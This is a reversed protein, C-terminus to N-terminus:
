QSDLVQKCKQIAAEQKKVPWDPEFAITQKTQIVFQQWAKKRAEYSNQDADIEEILQNLTYSQLTDESAEMDSINKIPDLQKRYQVFQEPTYDDRYKIIEFCASKIFESCSDLISFVRATLQPNRGHKLGKIYAPIYEQEVDLFKELVSDLYKDDLSSLVFAAASVKDKKVSFLHAKIYKDIHNIGHKLAEFKPEFMKEITLMKRWAFEEVFFLFTFQKFYYYINELLNLYVENYFKDHEILEPLDKESEFSFAEMMFEEETLIRKKIQNEAM